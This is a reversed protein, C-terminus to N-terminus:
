PTMSELSTWKELQCCVGLNKMLETYNLFITNHKCSFLILKVWWSRISCYPECKMRGFMIFVWSCLFVFDGPFRNQVFLVIRCIWLESLSLCRFWRKKKWKVGKEGTQFRSMNGWCVFSTYLRQLRCEVFIETVCRKLNSNFLIIAKSRTHGDYFDSSEWKRHDSQLGSNLIKKKLDM